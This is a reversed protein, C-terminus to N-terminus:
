TGIPASPSAGAMMRLALEGDLNAGDHFIRGDAQVLPEGSSPQESVALVSDATVLNRTVHFYSLLGCPEHQM